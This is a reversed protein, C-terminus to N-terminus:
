EWDRASCSSFINQVTSINQETNQSYKGSNVIVGLSSYELRQSYNASYQSYKGSRNKEEKMEALLFYLLSKRKKM